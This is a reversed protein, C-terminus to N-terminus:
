ILDTWDRFEADTIPCDKKKKKIRKLYEERTEQIKRRKQKLSKIFEDKTQKMNFKVIKTLKKM